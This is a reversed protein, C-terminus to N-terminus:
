ASEVFRQARAHVGDVLEELSSSDGDAEFTRCQRALSDLEALDRDVAEIRRYVSEALAAVEDTLQRSGAEQDWLVLLQRPIAVFEKTKEIYDATEAALERHAAAQRAMDALGQRLAKSLMELASVSLEAEADGDILEATFRAMMTTHLRALAVRFRTAAGNEDLRVLADILRGVEQDVIDQMRVWVQLLELLSGLEGDSDLGEVVDITLSKDGMEKELSAGARRLSRSLDTLDEQRSMWSDLEVAIRRVDGLMEGLVGDAQPREPFGASLEERKAVEAPLALEQLEEYSSFGAQGLLHAIRKSGEAAVERRNHDQEQLQDEFERVDRYIALATDFYEQCMPRTRVSLYGGDALPTVTAFVDYESGDGALNRVYGAFPKGARLMEWMSRFVGSPMEPHRVINHPAGALEDRSYRSLEVFVRNSHGIVGREDTTSFFIEDVGVEHTAGTIAVNTM